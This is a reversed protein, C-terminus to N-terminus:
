PMRWPSLVFVEIIWIFNFFERFFWFLEKLFLFFNPPIVNRSKFHYQLVTTIFITDQFLSRSESWHFSILVRVGYVLTLNLAYELGQNSFSGYFVSLFVPLLKSSISRLHRIVWSCQCCYCFCFYILSYWVLCNQMTFSFVVSHPFSKCLM